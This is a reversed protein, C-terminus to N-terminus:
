DITIALAFDMAYYGGHTDSGKVFPGGHLCAIGPGPNGAQDVTAAWVHWETASVREILASTSGTCETLNPDLELFWVDDSADRFLMGFTGNVIEGVTMAQLDVGRVNFGGTVPRKRTWYQAAVVQGDMPNASCDGVCQSFDVNVWRDPNSQRAYWGDGEIGGLYAGAGDSTVEDAFGCSGVDCDRLLSSAAVPDSGGGKGPKGKAHIPAVAAVGALLVACAFIRNM